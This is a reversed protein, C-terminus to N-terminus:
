KTCITGVYCACLTWTYPTGKHVALALGHAMIVGKFFIFIKGM